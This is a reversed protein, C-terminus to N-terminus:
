LWFWKLPLSFLIGRSGLDFMWYEKLLYIDGPRRFSAINWPKLWLSIGFFSTSLKQQVPHIDRSHTPFNLKTEEERCGKIQIPVKGDHFGLVWRQIDDEKKHIKLLLEQNAEDIRQMDKELDMNLSNINRKSQVLRLIEVKESRYVWVGWIFLPM